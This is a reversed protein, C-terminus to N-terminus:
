DPPVMFVLFEKSPVQSQYTQLWGNPYAAQLASIAAQDEPKLLFLKAGPVSRTNELQEVYLAYDKEPFGATIGVLRTDVWHPYPIIWANDQRGTLESFGRMVKGLESTNWASLRYQEAYQVFILQYGQYATWALLLAVLLWAVRRGKPPNLWSECASM